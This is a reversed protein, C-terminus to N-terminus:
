EGKDSFDPSLSADISIWKKKVETVSGTENSDEGGEGM